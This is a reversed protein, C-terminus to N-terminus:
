SSLFFLTHSALAAGSESVFLSCIDPTPALRIIIPTGSRCGTSRIHTVVFLLGM